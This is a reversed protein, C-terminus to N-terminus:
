RSLDGEWHNEFFLEDIPKCAIPGYGRGVAYGMPIAAATYWDDPIGLLSKVDAEVICLLTTLVCGMGEARCALMLSQVAPYISEGGVVSVRDQQADTVAMMKPNFCVIAIAPLEAFNGALHNGAAITREEKERREQPADAFRKIYSAAFPDWEAKYLEGLRKKKDRDTVIIMRWPQQNGGTPAWAAAQMIRHLIDAPIPDPRLRRVARQTRMLEYLGDRIAQEPMFAELGNGRKALHAGCGARRENRQFEGIM